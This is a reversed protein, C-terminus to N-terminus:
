KIRFRRWSYLPDTINRFTHGAKYMREWLDVDQARRKEPDYGGVAEAAERKYITTGHNVIFYKADKGVRRPEPIEKHTIQFCPERKLDDDYFGTLGTGLVTTGPNKKLYALQRLVRSSHSIDDSGMILVWPTSCAKTGMNLAVSTGSNESLKLLQIRPNRTLMELSHITDLSTSGDDVLLIPWKNDPGVQNLLSHVAERLHSGKTNFVPVIATLDIM